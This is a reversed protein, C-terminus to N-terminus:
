TRDAGIALEKAARVFDQRDEESLDDKLWFYVTHIMGTHQVDM